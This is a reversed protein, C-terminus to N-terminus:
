VISPVTYVKSASRHKSSSPAADHPSVVRGSSQDYVRSLGLEAEPLFEPVVTLHLTYSLFDFVRASNVQIRLTSPFCTPAGRTFTSFKSTFTPLVPPVPNQGVPFM